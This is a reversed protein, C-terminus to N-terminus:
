VPSCPHSDSTFHEGALGPTLKLAVFLFLLLMNVCVCVCVNGVPQVSQSALKYMFKGFKGSSRLNSTRMADKIFHVSGILLGGGLDLCGGQGSWHQCPSCSGHFGGVVALTEVARSVRELLILFLM